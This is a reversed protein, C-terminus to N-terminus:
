NASKLVEEILIYVTDPVERRMEHVVKGHDDWLRLRIADDFYPMQQFAVCDVESFPGGQQHLTHISAESLGWVYEPNKAVLYRKAKVHNRIPETVSPPFGLTVLLDAGMEDHEAAGFLGASAGAALHGIDHLFAAVKLADSVREEVAYDFCQLAHELQTVDEGYKLRAALTYLDAIRQITTQEQM